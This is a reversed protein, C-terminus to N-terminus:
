TFRILYFFQSETDWNKWEVFHYTVEDLEENYEVHFNYGSFFWDDSKEIFYTIGDVTETVLPDNPRDINIAVSFNDHIETKGYVKGFFRVSDGKELGMEEIYWQHAKDSVQIKM